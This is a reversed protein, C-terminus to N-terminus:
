RPSIAGGPAVWTTALYDFCVHHRDGGPPQRLESLWVPRGTREPTRYARLRLSCAGFELYVHRDTPNTAVVRAVLERPAVGEVRMAAAYDLLAPDRLPPRVDRSLPLTGAPVVVTDEGVRVLVGFAYRGEPLSDGLLEHARPAALLAASSLHVPGGPPIERPVSPPPCDTAPQGPFTWSPASPAASGTYARLQVVCVGDLSVPRDTVNHASLGIGVWPPMGEEGHLVASA